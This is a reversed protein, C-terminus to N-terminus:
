PPFNYVIRNISLYGTPHSSFAICNSASGQYLMPRIGVVLCGLVFTGWPAHCYPTLIPYIYILLRTPHPWLSLGLVICSSDLVTFLYFVRSAARTSLFGAPTYM